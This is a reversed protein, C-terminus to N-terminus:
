RRGGDQFSLAMQLRSEPDSRAAAPPLEVVACERCIARAADVLDQDESFLVVQRHAAVERLVHLALRLRNEDFRAFPDDLLLPAEGTTSDLLRVIELREILYIQDQTGRSLEGVPVLRGTEPAEVQIRLEDDVVANRYRGDTVVPLYRRLAENL